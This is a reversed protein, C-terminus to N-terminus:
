QLHKPASREMKLFAKIYKNECNLDSNSHSKAGQTKWKFIYHANEWTM